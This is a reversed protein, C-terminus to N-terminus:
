DAKDDSCVAADDAWTTAAFSGCGAAFHVTGIMM